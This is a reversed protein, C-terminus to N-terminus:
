ISLSNSIEFLASGDRYDSPDDLIRGMPLIIGALMDIVSRGGFPLTRSLDIQGDTDLIFSQIYDLPESLFTLISNQNLEWKSTLSNRHSLGLEELINLLSEFNDDVVQLSYESM